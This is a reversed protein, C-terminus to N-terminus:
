GRNFGELRGAELKLREKGMRLQARTVADVGGSKVPNETESM